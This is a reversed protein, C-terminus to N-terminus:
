LFPANKKVETLYKKEVNLINVEREAYLKVLFFKPVDYPSLSETILKIYRFKLINLKLIPQKTAYNTRLKISRKATEELRM